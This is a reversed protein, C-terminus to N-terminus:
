HREGEGEGEGDGEGEADSALSIFKENGEEGSDREVGSGSVGRECARAREREQALKEERARARKRAGKSWGIGSSGSERSVSGHPSLTM